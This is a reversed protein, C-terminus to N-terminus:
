MGLIKKVEAIFRDRSLSGKEEVYQVKGRLRQKDAHSLSMATLIIIPISSTKDTSHLADAAEFGSMGPMMLDLVIFDPPQRRAAEIGDRGNSAKVVAVGEARLADEMIQIAGPDDDIILARRGRLTKDGEGSYAPVAEVPQKVPMIFTFKSGKGWKSEALISGGHLEVFRKTLALGLGTGEYKKEYSSEIQSFEKFLKSMDEPKIGIGTDTVSIEIFSPRHVVAESPHLVSEDRTERGEDKTGRARVSVSGGDDTFKVANSLLNFMIQKLKREDAEIEIDAEVDIDVALRIGHKIAKEKLLTMSMNLVDRLLFASLDLEMKGSEVKSLDLIDNILNLLHKGSAYINEAYIKQKENLSGYLEDHLVESFGLISNLPTRLEHSMNALFDSKARSVEELKVNAKNLERQQTELEENMAQLEENMVQLEENSSSLKDSLRRTTDLLGAGKYAFFGGMFLMLGAFAFLCSTVARTRAFVDGEPRQVIVGWGWAEVPYYASLMAEKKVPDLIREVGKLGKRVKEVVPINSFDTIRDAKYEPHYILNGNKDVVYIFGSGLGAEGTANKIYDEKPMMGLIGLISGDQAKIPVAIVFLYRQPKGVRLFFESVYPTWNKSVGKYWDRYSLDKGIALPDEAALLIGKPSAIFAREITYSNKVLDKLHMTMEKKDGRQLGALLYPRAAYARGYAIDSKLKWEIHRAVNGTYSINENNIMDEIIGTFSFHVFLLLGVVPIASGIIGSLIIRWRKRLLWGKLEPGKESSRQIHFSRM